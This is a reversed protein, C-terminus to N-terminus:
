SSSWYWTPSMRGDISSMAASVSSLMGKIIKTLAGITLVVACISILAKAVQEFSSTMASAFSNILNGVFAGLATGISCLVSSGDGILENFGPIQALGGLAALVGTIGAIVLGVSAMGKLVNKIDAEIGSLAEVVPALALIITVISGMANVTQSFDKPLNEIIGNILSGIFAGIANGLSAFIKAGDSILESAGPIKSIGGLLALVGLIGGVVVAFGAIGKVAGGILITSIIEAAAAMELLALALSGSDYTKAGQKVMVVSGVKIEASGDAVADSVDVLDAVNVAAVVLGDYSIVARDRVLETVTHERDCVFPALYGGNYTKAGEKVMVTSGVKIGADSKEAEERQRRNIEDQIAYYDYGAATLEDYRQQGVGWLGDYIEDIIEDMSKLGVGEPLTIGHAKYWAATEAPYDVYCVDADIKLGASYRLGSQWLKQGYQRPTSVWHALWLDKHGLIRDKDLFEEIWGPNAYIGSPYGLKEVEDIFALAIDTAAKKGLASIQAEEADFFVPYTPLPYRKIQEVAFRAERRVEDVSVASSYHYFGYDIKQSICGNVHRNLLDDM